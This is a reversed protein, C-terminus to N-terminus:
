EVIGKYLADEEGGVETMAKAVDGQLGKAVNSLNMRMLHVKGDKGDFVTVRCPLPPTKGGGAKAVKEEAGAPCLSMVKMRPADKNGAQRMIAQMDKTEGVKWGRKEAASKIAALTEEFGLKSKRLDFMVSMVQMRQMQQLQMTQEATLPIQPAPTQGQATLSLCALLAFVTKKM